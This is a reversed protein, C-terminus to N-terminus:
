KKKKEMEAAIKKYLDKAAELSTKEGIFVSGAARGVWNWMTPIAVPGTSYPGWSRAKILQKPYGSHSPGRKIKKILTKQAPWQGVYYKFFIPESILYMVLKYAEDPHKTNVNIGLQRGGVFTVSERPHIESAFPNPKNPYRAKYAAEIQSLVFEPTSIISFDGRVMGEILEQAGWNTIGLMSKPNLGQDFYSKYYDFGEAIQEPTINMYYSGDAARDVLAWGHSWWYFNLFFWISNTPASGAPFAWGVAGTKEKIQRSADRLGEWTSPFETIGAKQLIDKRYVMAFTDVTWPIAHITGDDQSALDASIFDDWGAGVGYKKILDNLSLFVGSEGMSRTWVQAIHVVDPGEGVAAERLFQERANAWAIRELTVKIGPNQQEFVDLAERLEKQEADNFRFSLEVKAFTVGALMVFWIVSLLLISSIRKNM